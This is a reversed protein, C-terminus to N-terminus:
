RVQTITAIVSPIEPRSPTTSASEAYMRVDTDASSWYIQVFDGAALTLVFNWAAAQKAANGVLWMRTNSWPVNVQNKALWIDVSDSGSDTKEVQASFQINYVGANAVTIRSGSAISTGVAEATQDFSLANVANAVPNTLTATNYFSGYYSTMSGPIGQAGQSGTAGTAGNSGNSGNSGNVGNAGALGQLGQPGTLGTTGTAGQSGTAGNSGSLGQIGQEGQPGTDGKMGQLLATTQITGDPFKIGRAFSAYGRDTINGITIDQDSLISEIGAKTLRINGIRLSDAGDILLTGDDVTLGAQLGTVKDQIYLTGPGLQLDKWRHTADGLTYYNDISPILDGPLELLNIPAQCVVKGEEGTEGKLGAAGATGTEGKLGASGALGNIVTAGSEPAACFGLVDLTNALLPKGTMTESIYFVANATAILFTFAIISNKLRNRAM